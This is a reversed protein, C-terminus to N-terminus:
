TCVACSSPSVFRLSRVATAADAACKLSSAAHAADVHLLGVFKDFAANPAECVLRGRFSACDADSRFRAVSAPVATRLKLNTEGDLQATQVYCTDPTDTDTAFSALFLSDAPLQGNRLM